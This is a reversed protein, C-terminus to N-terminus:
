PCPEQRPWDSGVPSSGPLLRAHRWHGFETHRATSERPNPSEIALNSHQVVESIVTNVEGLWATISGCCHLDSWLCWTSSRRWMCVCVCVCMKGGVVLM